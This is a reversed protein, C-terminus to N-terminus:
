GSIRPIWFGRRGAASGDSGEGDSSTGCALNAVWLAFQQTIRSPSEIQAVEAHERWVTGFAEQSDHQPAAGFGCGDGRFQPDRRAAAVLLEEWGLIETALPVGPVCDM